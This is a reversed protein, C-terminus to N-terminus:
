RKTLIEEFFSLARPDKSQGLWFMAQKRVEPNRNTRAIEILRPVGEDKPMQSLAFVARKKVETDPDDRVADEITEAVRAGAKQGLWFLAAARVRPQHDNRAAQLLLDLAGTEKSVSVAFVIQERIKGDSVQTFARKLGALGAPGRAAGMWFVASQQVKSTPGSLALRELARDAEGDAHFAIAALVGDHGGRRGDDGSALSALWAISQGTKVGTLWVVPRGGADIECDLSYAAARSFAGAEFRVFVGVDPSGDLLVGEALDTNRVVDSADRELWVRGSAHGSEWATGHCSRRGAGNAQVAYGVWIVDAGRAAADMDAALSAGAPRTTFDGTVQWAQAQASAVAVALGLLFSLLTARRMIASRIIANRM